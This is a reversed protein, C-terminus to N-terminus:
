SIKDIKGKGLRKVRNDYIYIKLDPTLKEILSEVMEWNGGGIGCGIKPFGMILGKGKFKTNLKKLFKILSAYEFNPGPYYQTYANIIVQKGIKVKSYNGLKLPSAYETKCDELLAEPYSKAIQYALGAGMTHFCNCGQVMVDINGKKFDEVIDVGIKTKKNIM